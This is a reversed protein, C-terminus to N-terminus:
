LYNYTFKNLVIIAMLFLFVFVIVSIGFILIDRAREKNPNDQRARTKIGVVLRVIGLALFIMLFSYLSITAVVFVFPSFYIFAEALRYSVYAVIGSLIYVTYFNNYYFKSWNVNARQKSPQRTEQAEQSYSRYGDGFANRVMGDDNREQEQEQVPATSVPEDIIEDESEYQSIDAGCIPCFKSADPIVSGCNPCFM